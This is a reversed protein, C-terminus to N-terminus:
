RPRTNSRRNCTASAGYKGLRLPLGYTEVFAIWDKVTYSKCMWGFAVLRALGGRGVLGSKLKARHSIWKFPELALGNVMDLEDILRVERGTDRDFMFFRPDRHIFEEIWWSRKGSGWILEVQSFGKGLADLMDEVLDAFGDHEALGSRVDMAIRVDDPKDSAPTVVPIVGSVARKRVGLVSAYHPDREEMEEALILYADLDNESANSLVTALRAPTLGSAISRSWASRISTIGPEAVRESLSQRRVPRQYQDVLRYHQGTAGSGSSKDAM